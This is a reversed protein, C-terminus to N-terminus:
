DVPAFVVVFVVLVCCVLVCWCDLEVGVWDVDGVEGFDEGEDVM